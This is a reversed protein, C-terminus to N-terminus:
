IIARETYAGYVDVIARSIEGLTCGAQACEILQEICNLNQELKSKLKALSKSVEAESRQSKLASLRSIQDQEVKPDVHHIDIDPDESDSYVNVGVIRELGEDLKRQFKYSSEAILRQPYGVEVAKLMGGLTKVENFFEDFKLEFRKTLFEVYYSGGLPDVTKTVGSEEAIIQQTRLAIKVAQETPLSLTEDMSNTHLSQVGGLVAALAQIAVRVINNHPQQATLSVGATQAHMRLWWSRPNQAGYTEKMLKAWIKRAARLKAVEEFFDNHVDFFFSLRPAFEDIKLGRQLCEDVYTLGDCLTFNLEQSATAGAERIHYGSISIPNFKPLNKACFEIVDCALKVSPRPPVIWEKQAIFEKLPDNQITGSIQRLDFGQNLANAVFFAFIIPATANVTMSVTVKELNIGEFLRRMDDLSSVNVGERGVEGESKPDDADFGMLTPMDFATSLGTQGLSMLYKFRKNTDEPTGFGAFQRMTWLKDRYMTKHIGRTFPYEGPYGLDEDPNFGVEDLHEPTYVLDISEFSMNEVYRRDELSNAKLWETYNKNNKHNKM